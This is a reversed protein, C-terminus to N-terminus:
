LWDLKSASKPKMGAIQLNKSVFEGQDELEKTWINSTTKTSESILFGSDQRDRFIASAWCYVPVITQRSPSRLEIDTSAQTVRDSGVAM